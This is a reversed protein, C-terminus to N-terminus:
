HNPSSRDFDHQVVCDRPFVNLWSVKLPLRCALARGGIGLAITGTLHGGLLELSTGASGM